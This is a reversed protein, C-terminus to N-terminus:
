LTPGSRTSSPPLSSRLSGPLTPLSMPTWSQSGSFRSMTCPGYRANCRMALRMGPLPSRAALHARRWGGQRRAERVYTAKFILTLSHLFARRCSSTGAAATLHSPPFAAIPRIRQLAGRSPSFTCKKLAIRSVRTEARKMGPNGHLAGGLCVGRCLFDPRGTWSTFPTLGKTSIVQLHQGVPTAGNIHM